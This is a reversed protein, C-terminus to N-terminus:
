QLPTDSSIESAGIGKVRPGVLYRPSSRIETYIAKIEIAPDSRSRFGFTHVKFGTTCALASTPNQLAFLIESPHRSLTCGALVSTPLADHAEYVSKAHPSESNETRISM